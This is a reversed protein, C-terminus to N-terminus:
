ATVGDCALLCAQSHQRSLPHKKQPPSGIEPSAQHSLLNESFSRRVFYDECIHVIVVISCKGNNPSLYVRKSRIVTFSQRCSIQSLRLRNAACFRYPASNSM